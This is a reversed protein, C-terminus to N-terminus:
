VLLVRLHAPDVVDPELVAKEALGVPFDTAALSGANEAKADFAALLCTPVKDVWQLQDQAQDIDVVAQWGALVVYRWSFWSSSAAPAPWGWQLM